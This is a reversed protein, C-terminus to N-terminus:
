SSSRGRSLATSRTVRAILHPGLPGPGLRAPHGACGSPIPRLHLAHASRNPWLLEAAGPAQLTPQFGDPLGAAAALGADPRRETAAPRQEQGAATAHQTASLSPAAAPSCAAGLCGAQQCCGGQTEQRAQQVAAGHTACAQAQTCQCHRRQSTQRPAPRADVVVQARPGVHVDTYDGPVPDLVQAVVLQQLAFRVLALLGDVVLAAGCTRGAREASSAPAAHSWVRGCRACGCRQLGLHVAAQQDAAAVPLARSVGARAASTVLCFITLSASTLTTEPSAVAVAM